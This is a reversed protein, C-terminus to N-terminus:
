STLFDCSSCIGAVSFAAASAASFSLFYFASWCSAGAPCDRVRDESPMLDSGGCGGGDLAPGISASCQSFSRQM